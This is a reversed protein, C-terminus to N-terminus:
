AFANRRLAGAPRSIGRVDAMFPIEMVESWPFVARTVPADRPM